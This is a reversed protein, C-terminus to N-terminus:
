ADCFSVEVVVELFELADQCAKALGAQLDVGLFGEESAGFQLVQAVPDGSIADLRHLVLDFRDHVDGLRLCALFKSRENANDVVVAVHPKSSGM